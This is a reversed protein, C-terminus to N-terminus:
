SVLALGLAVVWSATIVLQAFFFVFRVTVARITTSRLHVASQGIRALVLPLATSDTIDQHGTMAAVVLLAVVVPLNEYCNAHARCLRGSFPSVDDGAVAFRNPAHRRTFSLYTRLTAISAVLAFTWGAYIWLALWSM